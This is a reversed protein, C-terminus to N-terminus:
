AFTLFNTQIRMSKERIYEIFSNTDGAEHTSSYLQEGDRMEQLSYLEAIDIFKWPVKENNENLFHEEEKKGISRAKMFADELSRAQVLRIQEDFQSTINKNEIAINFILKALYSKM